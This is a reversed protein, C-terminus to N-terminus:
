FLNLILQEDPMMARIEKNIKNLYFKKNINYEEFPKEEYLNFVKLMWTGAEVNTERGDVKNCKLIKSGTDSIYYRLTKQIYREVIQNNEVLIEKFKKSLWKIILLM